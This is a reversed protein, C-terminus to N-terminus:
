REMSALKMAKERMKPDYEAQGPVVMRLPIQLQDCATKLSAWHKSTHGQASGGWKKTSASSSGWDSANAKKIFHARVLHAIEQFKLGYMPKSRRLSARKALVKEYKQTLLHIDAKVQQLERQKQALPSEEPETQTAQSVSSLAYVTMAIPLKHFAVRFPSMAHKM